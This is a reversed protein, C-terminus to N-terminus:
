RAPPFVQAWDNKVSVVHIGFEAARDLTDTLPSLKFDRDYASERTDDDHHVILALRRGPGDLTYRLMAQDGDSNGFALIPRRGIHLWINAPKVARDDFTDLQALKTLQFRGNTERLETKVSSGIVQEPPVGYVHEAFARMFDVGGGSVIFTKFGNARLYALLELQPQYVVQTYPRDLKPHRASALWQRVEDQFAEVPMGAHIAFAFEFVGEKGLAHIAAMDHDLFAKFPQRQALAPDAMAMASARDLTFLVQVQLPQECWLTGDNDFVAIREAAPVFDPGGETTVATVFDVIARRAAADNWSPLSQTM